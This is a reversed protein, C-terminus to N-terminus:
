GKILGIMERVAPLLPPYHYPTDIFIQILFLLSIQWILPIVILFTIPLVLMQLDTMGKYWGFILIISIFLVLYISLTVIANLWLFVTWFDSIRYLYGLIPIISIIFVPILYFAYRLIQRISDEPLIKSILLIGIVNLPIYVPSLYRIDPYIGVSTHLGGISTLYAVFVGGTLTIMSILIMETQEVKWAYHKFLRPLFFLGIICIPVLALIPVKLAEPSVLVGYLNVLFADIPADPTIRSIGVEILTFVSNFLTSPVGPEPSSSASIILDAATKKAVADNLVQFPLKLPNGTVFLNNLLLPIIGISVGLPTLLLHVTHKVGGNSRWALLTYFLLLLVLTLFLFAGLEPRIWSILGTVIFSSFLHWPDTTTIYYLILLLLLSFAVAVMLHDKCTNMWFLYSSCSISTFVGFWTYLENRTVIRFIEYFVLTMIIFFFLNMMVIALIETNATESTINIPSYSAINLILALFSLCLVPASFRSYRPEKQLSYALLIFLLTFLLSIYYPFIDGIIKTFQLFPYAVIPIFSTYPLINDKATFYINATGNPYYGYKGENYLIQNNQSLQSLQNATIWEDNFYIFPNFLLFVISILLSLLIFFFNM